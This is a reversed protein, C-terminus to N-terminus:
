KGNYHDVPYYMSFVEMFDDHDFEYSGFGTAASGCEIFEFHHCGFIEIDGNMYIVKALYSGYGWYPGTRRRQTPLDQIM